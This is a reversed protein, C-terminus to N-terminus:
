TVRVETTPDRGSLGRSGLRASGGCRPGTESSNSVCDTAVVDDLLRVDVAAERLLELREPQRMMALVTLGTDKALVTLVRGVSSMGGRILLTLGPQADAGITLSGYATQLTEPVLGLVDWGLGALLVPIVPSASV